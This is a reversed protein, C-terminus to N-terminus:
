ITYSLDETEAIERNLKDCILQCLPFVFDDDISYFVATGRKKRHVIKADHLVALHQSVNPQSLELDVALQGVNKAESKLSQLIALRNADAFVKFIQAVNELSQRDLM